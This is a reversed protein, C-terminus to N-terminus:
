LLDRNKGPTLNEHMQSFIIRAAPKLPLNLALITAFNHLIFLAKRQTRHKRYILVSCKSLGEGGQNIREGKSREIAFKTTDNSM